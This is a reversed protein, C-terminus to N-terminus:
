ALPPLLTDVVARKSILPLMATELIDKGTVLLQVAQVVVPVTVALRAAPTFVTRISVISDMSNALISQISTVPLLGAAADQLAAARISSTAKGSFIGAM